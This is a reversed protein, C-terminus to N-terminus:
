FINDTNQAINNELIKQLDDFLIDPHFCASGVIRDFESQSNDIKHFKNVRVLTPIEMGHYDDEITILSEDNVVEHGYRIKIGKGTDYNEDTQELLPYHDTCIKDITSNNKAWVIKSKSLDKDTLKYNIAVNRRIRNNLIFNKYESPALDLFRTGENHWKYEGFAPTHLIFINYVPINFVKFFEKQLKKLVGEKWVYINGDQHPFMLFNNTQDRNFKEVDGDFKDYSIEFIEKALTFPKILNKNQIKFYNM